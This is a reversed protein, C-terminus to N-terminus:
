GQNAEMTVEWTLIRKFIAKIIMVKMIKSERPIVLLIAIKSFKLM